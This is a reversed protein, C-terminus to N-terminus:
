KGIALKKDVSPAGGQKEIQERIQIYNNKMFSVQDLLTKLKKNAQFFAGASLSPDICKEQLQKHCQKSVSKYQYKDINGIPIM